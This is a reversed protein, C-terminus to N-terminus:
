SDQMLSRCVRAKRWMNRGSVRRTVEDTQWYHGSTFPGLNGSTVLLLPSLSMVGVPYPDIINDSPTLLWSHSCTYLKKDGERIPFGVYMGDILRLSGKPLDLFLARCISHCQFRPLRERPYNKLGKRLNRMREFVECLLDRDQDTAGNGVDTDYIM